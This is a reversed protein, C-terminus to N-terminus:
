VFARTIVQMIIECTLVCTGNRGRRHLCLHYRLSITQILCCKQYSAAIGSLQNYPCGICLLLLRCMCLQYTICRVSICTQCIFIILPHNFSGRWSSRQAYLSISLSRQCILPVICQICCNCCRIDVTSQIFHCPTNLCWTCSHCSRCRRITGIRCLICLNCIICEM